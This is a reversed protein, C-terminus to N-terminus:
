RRVPADAPGVSFEAEIGNKVFKGDNGFYGIQEKKVELLVDVSRGRKMHIRRFAVLQKKPTEVPANKVKMYAQVVEDGDHKGTNTVRVKLLVSGTAPNLEQKFKSYRFKTYSLGYGFPFLPKGEFYRYTRNKMSYDRFDPLDEVSRYFTVPLRGGPNYKGFLAEAIATGGEEGPYWAQII